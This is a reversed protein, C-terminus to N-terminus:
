SSKALSPTQEGKKAQRVAIYLGDTRSFTIERKCRSCPVDLSGAQFDTVRCLFRGCTPCHLNM